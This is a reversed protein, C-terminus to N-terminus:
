SSSRIGRSSRSIRAELQLATTDSLSRQSPAVSKQDLRNAMNEACDALAQYALREGPSIGAEVRVRYESARDRWWTSRSQDRQM